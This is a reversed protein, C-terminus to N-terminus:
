AAGIKTEGFGFRRCLIAATPVSTVAKFTFRGGKGPSRGFAFVTKNAPKSIATHPNTVKGKM